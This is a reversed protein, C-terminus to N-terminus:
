TGFNLKEDGTGQLVTATNETWWPLTEGWTDAYSSLRKDVYGVRTATQCSSHSSWPVACTQWMQGKRGKDASSSTVSFKPSKQTDKKEYAVQERVPPEVNHGAALSDSFVHLIVIRKGYHALPNWFARM